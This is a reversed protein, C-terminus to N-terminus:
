FSMDNETQQRKRKKIQAKAGGAVETIEQTIAAQRVRNYEVSLNGLLEEANDNASKMATMRANQESCFSEVLAGYIYGAIYSPVINELAATVNPVFEYEKRIEGTRVEMKGFQGREFPLLQAKRVLAQGGKEMQSYIVRIEDCKGTNYLNLLVNSIERARRFTPNQATYLFSREIPIKRRMFYQRGYEGVVYLLMNHHRRIEEEAQKLINHNYAGALGKDATIVLYVYTEAPKRGTEPYFYHSNVDNRRQFIRMMESEQLQFYPLTRELDARAKTLKTSAILYMANTIKQTNRVSEIRNKIEKTNAM